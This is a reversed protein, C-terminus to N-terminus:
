NCPRAELGSAERLGNCKPADDRRKLPFPIEAGHSQPDVSPLVITAPDRSRPGDSNPGAVAFVPLCEYRFLRGEPGGFGYPWGRAAKPERLDYVCADSPLTKVWAALESDAESVQYPRMAFARRYRWIAQAQASLDQVWSFFRGKCTRERLAAIFSPLDDSVYVAVQPERFLCWVRGPLGDESVETIWCRYADDIALTLCPYFVPCTEVPYGSGTFDILGLQTGALGSCTSLFERYEGSTFAITPIRLDKSITRRLGPLPRIAHPQGPANLWPSSILPALTDTISMTCGGFFDFFCPDGTYFRRFLLSQTRFIDNATIKELPSIRIKKWAGFQAWFGKFRPHSERCERRSTWM